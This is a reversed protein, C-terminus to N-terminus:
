HTHDIGEQQANERIFDVIRRVTGRRIAKETARDKVMLTYQFKLHLFDKYIHIIKLKFSNPEINDRFEALAKILANELDELTTLNKYEIEFDVISKRIPSKTYNIIDQMIFRHNPIYILDDDDNLLATKNIGIHVIKGTHDGIKIIDDLVMEKSFAIFMGSIIDVIYDKSIIAIAAAVISLSTFLEKPNLGFFAVVTVISGGIVVLLYINNLGLTINDHQNRRLGVRKRYFYKLLDNLIDMAIIFALFKVTTVTVSYYAGLVEYLWYRIALLYLLIIIVLAKTIMALIRSRFSFM